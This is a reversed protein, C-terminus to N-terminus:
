PTGAFAGLVLRATPARRGTGATATSSPQVASDTTLPEPTATTARPTLNM